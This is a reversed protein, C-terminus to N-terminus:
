GGGESSVGSKGTGGRRLATVLGTLLCCWSHWRVGAWEGERRGARM